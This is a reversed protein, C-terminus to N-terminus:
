PDHEHISRPTKGRFILRILKGTARLVPHNEGLKQYAYREAAEEQEPVQGVEKHKLKHHGIEHYFTRELLFRNMGQIPINPHGFTRWVLTVVCTYPLYSGLFDQEPKEDIIFIRTIGAIDEEPLKRLWRLVHRTAEHRKDIGKSELVEIGNIDVTRYQSRRHRGIVGLVSGNVPHHRRSLAEELFPISDDESIDHLIAALGTLLATHGPLGIKNLNLRSLEYLLVPAADRGIASLKRFGAGALKTDWTLLGKKTERIARNIADNGSRTETM